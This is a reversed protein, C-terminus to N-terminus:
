THNLLCNRAQIYILGIMQNLIFGIRDMQKKPLIELRARRIIKIRDECRKVGDICEIQSWIYAQAECEAKFTPFQLLLHRLKVIAFHFSGDENMADTRFQEIVNRNM